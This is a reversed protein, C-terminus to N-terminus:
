LTMRVPAYVLPPQKQCLLTIFLNPRLRKLRKISPRLWNCFGLYWIDLEVSKLCTSSNSLLILQHKSAVTPYLTYTLSTLRKLQHLLQFLAQDTVTKVRLLNIIQLNIFPLYRQVPTWPLDMAYLFQIQKPHKCHKFIYDITEQQQNQARSLELGNSKMREDMPFPRTVVKSYLGYVDNPLQCEQWEIRNLHPCDRVLQLPCPARICQMFLISELQNMQSFTANVCAIRCLHLTRVNPLPGLKELRHYEICYDSEFVLKLTHINTLLGVFESLDTLQEPQIVLSHFTRTQQIWSTFASDITCGFLRRIDLQNFKGIHHELFSLESKPLAVQRNCRKRCRWRYVVRCKNHCPRLQLTSVLTSWYKHQAIFHDHMGKSLVNCRLLLEYHSLYNFISYLCDRPLDVLM